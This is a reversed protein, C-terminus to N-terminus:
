AVDRGKVRWWMWEVVPAGGCGGVCVRISPSARLSRRPRLRERRPSPVSVSASLTPSLSAQPSPWSLSARSWPRVRERRHRTHVLERRGSMRKLEPSHKRESRGAGEKGGGLRWTTQIHLEQLYAANSIAPNPQNPNLHANSVALNSENAKKHISKIEKV